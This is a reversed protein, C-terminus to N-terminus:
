IKREIITINSGTYENENGLILITLNKNVHYYMPGIMNIVKRM